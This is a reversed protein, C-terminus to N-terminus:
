ADADLGDLLMPFMEHLLEVKVVDGTERAVGDIRADDFTVDLQRDRLMPRSNPEGGWSSKGAPAVPKVQGWDFATQTPGAEGLRIHPLSGMANFFQM